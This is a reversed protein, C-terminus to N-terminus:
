GNSRAVLDFGLAAASRRLTDEGLLLVVTLAEITAAIEVTAMILSDPEITINISTVGPIEADGGMGDDVFVKTGWGISGSPPPIIRATKM